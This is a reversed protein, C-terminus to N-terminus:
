HHHVNPIFTQKNANLTNEFLNLTNTLEEEYTDGRVIMAEQNITAVYFGDNDIFESRILHASEQQESVNDKYTNKEM